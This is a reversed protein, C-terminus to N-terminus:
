MCAIGEPLKEGSLISISYLSDDNLKIKTPNTAIAGKEKRLEDINSIEPESEKKLSYSIYGMIATNNQFECDILKVYKNSYKSLSYIVGGYKSASNNQFLANKINLLSDSRENFSKIHM